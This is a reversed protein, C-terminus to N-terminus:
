DLPWPTLLPSASDPGSQRLARECDEVSLHRPGFVSGDTADADMLMWPRDVGFDDPHGPMDLLVHGLEHPLAYSRSGARVGTRDIVVVNQIGSGDTDIFSEGIRGTRSFSPVIFVDISSPDDDQYAKILTREELTGAVADLDDFHMLGDALNVEGICADLTRDTSTPHGPLPSLEVPTGDRERVLVDATRFAGPSIRTNPSVVARFGAAEVARAFAHAVVVPPDGARTVVRVARGNSLVSVEGGSAPLGMKCGIALLFRPPPDVIDIPIQAEDGFHIGCQGWLMSATRAEARAVARAGADDGGVPAQGSPSARVVHFHLKARYRGIPGLATDRPGGVRISTLERYRDAVGIRGGIEALVSHGVAAPHSRDVLDAVARVPGSDRCEAGDGAERPCKVTSLLVDVKDLPAGSPRFSTLRLKEPAAARPCILLWSLADRDLSGDVEKALIPPLTRSISAHSTALDVTHGQDDRALARCV